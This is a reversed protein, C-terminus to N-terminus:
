LDLSREVKWTMEGIYDQGDPCGWAAWLVAEDFSWFVVYNLKNGAATRRKLKDRRTWTDIAKRYYASDEAKELWQGYKLSDADSGSFWHGGHTWLGNFEIYLDRSKVYFDCRFPYAESKYQRLVDEEGFREVLMEYVANEQESVSYTRSNFMKESIDSNQSPYEVGYRELNTMRIKNKIAESAFVNEAGYREVNTAKVKDMVSENKMPNDVGYREVCTAKALSRVEESQMPHEVGYNELLTKKAREKVTDSQMANTVGYREMVTDEAKRRIDEVKMPNDAGYKAINGERMQEKIADSQLPRTVGYRQLTTAEAKNLVAKNKMPNDVGYREMWTAKRKKDMCKPCGQGNYHHSPTQEFAGHEPCIITVKTNANKYIVKSYDYRDGHCKKARLIFDNVTLKGM